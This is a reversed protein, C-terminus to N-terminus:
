EIQIYPMILLIKLLYQYIIKRIILFNLLMKDLEDQPEMM